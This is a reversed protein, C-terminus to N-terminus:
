QILERELEQRLVSTNHPRDQVSPEMCSQILKELDLSVESRYRRIPEPKAEVARAIRTAVTAERIRKRGVILEWITVALAYLDGRRDVTNGLAQEPPM